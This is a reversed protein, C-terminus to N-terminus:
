RYILSCVTIVLRSAYASSFRVALAVAPMRGSHMSLVWVAKAAGDSVASDPAAEQEDAAAAAAAATTLGVRTPHVGVFKLYLSISNYQM